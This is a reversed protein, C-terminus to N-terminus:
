GGSRARSFKLGGNKYYAVYIYQVNVYQWELLYLDAMGIYKKDFPM